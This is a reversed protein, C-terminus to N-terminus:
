GLYARVRGLVSPARAPDIGARMRELAALAPPRLDDDLRRVLQLCGLLRIATNENVPALKIVTDALWDLGRATWLVRNNAAVPLYLARSHSPHELRFAPRREEAAIADFVGDDVGSAVLSLYASYGNLHASWEAYAEALCAHRRPHGAAQMIGLTAVRDSFNWARRWHDEALQLLDDRGTEALPRLLTAKLRRDLIGDCPDDPRTYTDVGEFARRLADAHHQGAAALLRRRAAERQRYRPLAARDLSQEDIRLLAARLGPSLGPAELLRGYLDLWAASVPAAPDDLLRLRERDTLRRMAEVRNFGDPDALAQAALQEPTSSRDDFVGYFSCGRNFSVFAPEDIDEIALETRPDTLEVTRASGPLDRGDPGVAALEVPVHFLGGQGQRAQELTLALRRAAADYRWAGRVLPYGITHLWERRFAALDRGSVSAFCAFFQDTNANGGSFRRFYERKARRFTEEGLVLRLMRIVEAAKVYTVGDVLEDPHNFGERVIRGLHGGDEVSLPGHIPARMADVEDLRQVVPDFRAAMYQREVDVTYAENLWMDFPSEMTVDSGCQNHEFEHIIVGHAYELRLDSTFGDILAASTVITTNGVNEMGGFNSKEMCITRYVQFPYEYDQTRGHWQISDKLIHMPLRAGEVRGPPVLYELRVRRGSDYVVEDALVDWTGAAALFLYPAMPVPNLYTIVQRSPDRPSPVPRGDPHRRPCIDGNSVLHTYRADAEITTEFTCKARCDDIVPAIRQFGWQQCQSIFQPPAGPPTTDRYIGELISDSPRCITHTRVHIVADAPLTRPFSLRLTCAEPQWDVAAEAGPQEPPVGPEWWHVSLIELEQADLKLVDAPQLMRVRMTNIVEVRDDHVDLALQLHELTAPLPGFDQHRFKFDSTHM